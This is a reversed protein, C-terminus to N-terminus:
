LQAGQYLAMGYDGVTRFGLAAYAQQAPYNSDATFLVARAKGAARAALLAGAVVARGYGRGRQEAPTFVGGIQVLDDLTANYAAMAVPRDRDELVWLAGAEWRQRIERASQARLAPGPESAITELCYDARWGTLFRLDTEEAPRCLYRGEALPAPVALDALDLSQLVDRQHFQLGRGGADYARRAAEVQDWPGLFGEVRRGVTTLCAELLAPIQAIAPPRRRSCCWATGSTVRGRRRHRWGDLVAAYRGQLTEGRDEFGAARLNSLLFVSTELHRLLFAELAAEDGPRLARVETM